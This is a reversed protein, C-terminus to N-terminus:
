AAVMRETETTETTELGDYRTPWRPIECRLGNLVVQVISWGDTDAPVHALAARAKAEIAVQVGRYRISYLNDPTGDYEGEPIRRGSM